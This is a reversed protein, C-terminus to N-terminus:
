VTVFYIRRRFYEQILFNGRKRLLLPLSPLLSSSPPPSTPVNWAIRRCNSHVYRAGCWMWVGWLQVGHKNLFLSLLFSFSSFQSFFLLVVCFCLIVCWGCLVCCWWSWVGVGVCCVVGCTCVSGVCWVRWMCVCFVGCWVGSLRGHDRSHRRWSFLSHKSVHEGTLRGHDLSHWRLSFFHISPSTCRFCGVM